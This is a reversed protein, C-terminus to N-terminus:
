RPHPSAFAPLQPHEPTCCPHPTRARACMVCLAGSSLLGLCSYAAGGEELVLSRPWTQGGDDSRRVTLLERRAHSAPNCFFLAERAGKRKPPVALLCGHCGQPRPEILAPDYRAPGWSDGGDTSSQVQRTFRGSWDRLNLLVSGDARLALTAENTHKAAVGGVHWSRGHDDTYVCHAVMRSRGWSVLYPHELEEVDEAHNCPLLLRGSELQVGAGPGTAYWTWGPRKVSATIERPATWTKGLDASSTLWVRRGERDRCGYM